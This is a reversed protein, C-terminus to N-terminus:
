GTFIKLAQWLGFGLGIFEASELYVAEGVKTGDNDMLEYKVPGAGRDNIFLVLHGKTWWAPVGEKTLARGPLPQWNNGRLTGENIKTYQPRM